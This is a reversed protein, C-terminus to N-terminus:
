PLRTLDLILSIIFTIAKSLSTFSLLTHRTGGHSMNLNEHGMKLTKTEHGMVTCIVQKM